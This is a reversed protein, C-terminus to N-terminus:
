AAARRGPMSSVGKEGPWACTLVWPAQPRFWNNNGTWLWHFFATAMRWPSFTFLVQFGVGLKGDLISRLGSHLDMVDHRMREFRRAKSKLAPPLRLLVRSRIRRNERVFKVLSSSHRSLQGTHVRLDVLSEQIIGLYEKESLRSWFDYDGSVTYSPDFGGYTKLLDRRFCVTSLNGAICGHYFFHQQSLDPSLVDPLDSLDPESLLNGEGDIRTAKCFTLSVMPHAALFRVERELCRAHLRDDQCLIRVISGSAQGLLFNLNSFLGKRPGHFFHLRPDAFSQVLRASHDTSGDDSVLIEFDTHSQQFVSALCSELYAGGNYVPVLISVKQSM